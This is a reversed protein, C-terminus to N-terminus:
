VFGVRRVLAAAASLERGFVAVFIAVGAAQFLALFGLSRVLASLVDIQM